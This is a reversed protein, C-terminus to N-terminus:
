RDGTPRTATVVFGCQLAKQYRTRSKLWSGSMSNPPVAGCMPMPERVMKAAQFEALM